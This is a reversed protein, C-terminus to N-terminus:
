RTVPRRFGYDLLTAADTFHQTSGLVIAVITRGGRTAAAALCYGAADTYGPKLGIAGPYTWLLRDINSPYFAKHQATAPISVQKQGVIDRLDPYDELLTAAVVALDSASSYHNPDDLGSPNAFHTARLHLAAAKQNMFDIFRARDVIGGAIAEAADNGSNLLLGDLLERLTLQEGISLGMHNPEVLTAQPSVTIVTDMSTLDAAVIATMMKTLSADAYRATAAQEYLVQGSTLDVVIAARGAIHPPDVVPHARLWSRSLIPVKVAPLATPAPTRSPSASAQPASLPAHSAAAARPVAKPSGSTAAVVRMSRHPPTTLLHLGLLGLIVIGVLALRRLPNRRRAPVLFRRSSRTGRTGLSYGSTPYSTRRLFTESM